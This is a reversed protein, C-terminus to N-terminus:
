AGDRQGYSAEAAVKLTTRKTRTPKVSTPAIPNKNRVEPGSAGTLTVTTM